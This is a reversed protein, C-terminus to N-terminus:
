FSDQSHHIHGAALTACEEDPTSNEKKEQQALASNMEQEFSERHIITSLKKTNPQIPKNTGQRIHKQQIRFAVNSRLMQHDTWCNAIRMALISHIDMKDLCSTIIFDIMHWHGSRPHMWTIKLEDKQKFMTNTVILEFQSCLALLLEDNSNCKGIGILKVEQRRM